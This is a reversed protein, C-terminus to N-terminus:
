GFLLAHVMTAHRRIPGYDRVDHKCRVNAACNQCYRYNHRIRRIM